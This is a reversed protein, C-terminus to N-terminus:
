SKAAQEALFAAMTEKAMDEVTLKGDIYRQQKEKTFEDPPMNEISMNANVQQVWFARQEKTTPATDHKQATPATDNM